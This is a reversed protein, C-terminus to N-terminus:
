TLVVNSVIRIREGSPQRTMRRNTKETPLLVILGCRGIPQENRDDRSYRNGPTLTNSCRCVVMRPTPLPTAVQLPLITKM